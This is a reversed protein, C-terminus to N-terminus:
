RALGRSAPPTPPHDTGARQPQAATIAARMEATIDIADAPLAVVSMGGSEDKSTDLVAYGGAAYKRLVALVPAKIQADIEPQSRHPNALLAETVLAGKEVLAVKDAHPASGRGVYFAGACLIAAALYPLNGALLTRGVSARDVKGPEAVVPSLLQVVPVSPINGADSM